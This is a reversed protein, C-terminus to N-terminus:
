PPQTTLLLWDFKIKKKIYLFRIEKILKLSNILITKISFFDMCKLRFIQINEKIKCFDEKRLYLLILCESNAVAQKNISM